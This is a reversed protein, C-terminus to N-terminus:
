WHGHMRATDGLFAYQIATLYRTAVLWISTPGVSNLRSVFDEAKRYSGLYLEGRALLDAQGAATANEAVYDIKFDDVFQAVAFVSVPESKLQEIQRQIIPFALDPKPTSVYAGGVPLARDLFPAYAAYSLSRETRIAYHLESSLLQTAVRFGWYDSSTPPPGAFLGLLYTTATTPRHEILWQPNRREPPAPLTWQYDGRPLWGLTAAVLSEVRARTVNGVVVLLMRSTVIQGQLYTRLDEVTLTTLSAPTGSPDLSYPHGPFLSRLALARLRLDPQTYRRRARALLKGRAEAVAEASLVPHVVRDAFALWVSDLDEALATFGFVTWDAEPELTVVAGGRAIRNRAERGPFLATGYESAELLLAEIGATRESLQRSGGLLYLRVAVVDDTPRVRHIVRLGSVDYATTLSDPAVRRALPRAATPRAVALLATAIIPLPLSRRRTM